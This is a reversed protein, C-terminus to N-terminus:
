LPRWTIMIGPLPLRHNALFWARMDPWNAFGEQRATAFKKLPRDTHMCWVYEEFVEVAFVEKVRVQLLERQPSAYPRGTWVRLSAIEGVIARPKGDRRPARITSTKVGSLIPGEFRNQFLFVNM